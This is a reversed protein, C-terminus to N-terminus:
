RSAAREDLHLEDPSRLRLKGTTMVRRAHQGMPLVKFHSELIEFLRDLLALKTHASLRMAPFFALQPADEQGLFDLPHLLMSPEIRFLRCVSLAARFYLSALLPSFTAIYLLYSFHFPIKVAPVTSVPIELLREGNLHWFYPRVPRLGNKFSGFMAKRQEREEKTFDTRMMYYARALPGLYTPFASADFMYGRTVLTELTTRSISYGPGRFGRPTIGTAVSIAEEATAIEDRAQQASYLHLWPEHRFSHNGVEHGNAAISALSDRHQDAAADQGVVFFTIKWARKALTELVRPILVNIYSPYDEWGADGHTKMYSWLNDLDLSLSCVREVM